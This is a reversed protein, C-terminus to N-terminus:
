STDVWDMFCGSRRREVMRPNKKELEFLDVPSHDARAQSAHYWVSCGAFVGEERSHPRWLAHMPAGHITTAAYAEQDGSGPKFDALGIGLLEALEQALGKKKEQFCEEKERAHHVVFLVPSIVDRPRYRKLYILIEHQLSAAAFFFFGTYPYLALSVEYSVLSFHAKEQDGQTTESFLTPALCVPKGFSKGTM